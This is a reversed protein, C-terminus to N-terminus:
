QDVEEQWDALPIWTPDAGTYPTLLDYIINAPTAAAYELVVHFAEGADQEPPDTNWVGRGSLPVAARTRMFSVVESGGGVATGVAPYDLDGIGTPVLSFRGGTDGIASGLEGRSVAPAQARDGDAVKLVDKATISFTRGDPGAASEILYHSVTMEAL